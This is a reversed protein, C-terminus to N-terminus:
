VVREVRAGDVETLDDGLVKNQWREADYEKLARRAIECDPCKCMKHTRYVALAELQRDIM